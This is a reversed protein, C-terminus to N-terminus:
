IIEPFRTRYPDLRPDRPDLDTALTADAPVSWAGSTRSGLKAADVALAVRRTRGCVYSKIEADEAAPESPGILPDIAYASFLALDFALGDLVRRAMPGVFNDTARNLAGGVLVPEVGPLRTLALFTDLNNTAAILGPRTGIQAVMQYVTTSGDLYIAGSSPVLPLLKAAATAKARGGRELRAGFSLRGQAVAGGHVRAVAGRASLKDLDRRVTMESVNLKRALASVGVSGQKSLLRELVALRDEALHRMTTSRVYDFM